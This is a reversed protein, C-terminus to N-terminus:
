TELANRRIKGSPTKALADHLVLETPAAWPSLRNRVRARLDELRPPSNPDIAVAHAVVREGWEPDARKWIAVEAVGPADHLAAEVDAPWVKEGGTTIVEGRRGFVVLRGRDDFEGEDGTALWRNTGDPGVVLDAPGSRYARILTASAILIQGTSDISIEVGDIAVGDYVVGSGTETMGYTCVVNPPVLDPPAAGGLLIREFVTPDVRRLAATVLSVHTAGSATVAPATFRSHVVLRTGTLLARAVVSFGGIHSLPLCSLWTAGRPDIGLALSTSRASAELARQTLIAAKPTGSSGSTTVVLADGDEVPAGGTLRHRVGDAGIVATPALARMQANLAGAPLRSDPVCVADGDSWVREVAEIFSPSGALDLAVLDAM